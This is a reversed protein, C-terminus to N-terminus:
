NRKETARNRKRESLIVRFENGTFFQSVMQIFQPTKMKGSNTCNVLKAHSHTEKQLYHQLELKRNGPGYLCLYEAGAILEGVRKYYNKLQQQQRREKKEEDSMFTNGFRAFRKGEGAFRVRSEIGSEVSQVVPEKEGEMKVVMANDSDIWIGAKVDQHKKRKM